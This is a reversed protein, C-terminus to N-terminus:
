RDRWVFVGPSTEEVERPWVRGIRELRDRHDSIWGDALRVPMHVWVGSAPHDKVTVVAADPRGGPRVAIEPIRGFDLWCAERGATLSDLASAWDELDEPLLCTTLRGSAFGSTVVIEADLHDHGSPVGPQHRGLVKVVLTNEEDGLRVLEFATGGM